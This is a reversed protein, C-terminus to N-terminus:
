DEFDQAMRYNKQSGFDLVEHMAVNPLGSIWAIGDGISVVCGQESLRLRPRYSNLWVAQRALPMRAATADATPM